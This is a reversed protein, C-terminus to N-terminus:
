AKTCLLALFADDAPVNSWEAGRISGDDQFTVAGTLPAHRQGACDALLSLTNVPMWRAFFYLEAMRMDPQEPHTRVSAQDLAVFRDVYPVVYSWPRYFSKNEYSQAVVMTEPLSGNVNGFWAIENSIATALMAAGAGVPVLWKPLRRGTARIILAMVGAGAIGAIVTAILELLM